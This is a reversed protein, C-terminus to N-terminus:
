FQGNAHAVRPAIWLPKAKGIVSQVNTAGFYRGDLSRLEDNLLFVEDRRLVFCGQWTPLIRGRSDLALADAVRVSDIFIAEHNRCVEHGALAAVRKLLPTNPPLYRREAIFTEVRRNSSVLVYDGIDITGQSVLYLGIPASASANWVFKPAFEQTAAAALSTTAALSIAIITHAGRNM